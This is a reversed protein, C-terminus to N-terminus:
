GGREKRGRGRQQLILGWVSLFDRAGGSDHSMSDVTPTHKFPSLTARRFHVSTHYRNHCNATVLLKKNSSTLCKEGVKVKPRNKSHRCIKM